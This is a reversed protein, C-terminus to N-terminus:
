DFPLIERPSWTRGYDYTIQWGRSNDLHVVYIATWDIGNANGCQVRSAKRVDTIPRDM